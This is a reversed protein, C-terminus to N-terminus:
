FGSEPLIAKTIEDFALDTLSGSCLTEDKEALLTPLISRAQEYLRFGIWM